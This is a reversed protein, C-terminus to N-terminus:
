VKNSTDNKYLRGAFAEMQKNRIKSLMVASRWINKAGQRGPVHCSEIEWAGKYSSPAM